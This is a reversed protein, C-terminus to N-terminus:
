EIKTTLTAGSFSPPYILDLVYIGDDNITVTTIKSWALVTKRELQTKLKNFNKIKNM